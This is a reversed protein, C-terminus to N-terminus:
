PSSGVPPSSSSFSIVTIYLNLQLETVKMLLSSSSVPVAQQHGPLTLDGCLAVPTAAPHSLMLPNSEAASGELDLM